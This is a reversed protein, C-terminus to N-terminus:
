AAPMGASVKKITRERAQDAITILTAILVVGTSVLFISRAGMSSNFLAVLAPGLINGCSGVMDKIGLIRARHEVPSIDLFSASLAPNMLASGLGAIVFTVAIELYHRFFALGLFQASFLMLGILIIPKRGLRDSLRGFILEGFMCAIGFTSMVFGLM